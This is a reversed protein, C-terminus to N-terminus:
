DEIIVFNAISDNGDVICSAKALVSDAVDLVTLEYTANALQNSTLIVEYLVTFCDEVTSIIPLYHIKSSGLQVFEIAVATTLNKNAKVFRLLNTKNNSVRKM